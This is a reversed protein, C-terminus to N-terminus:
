ASPQGVRLADADDDLDGFGGGSYETSVVRLDVEAAENELYVATFTRVVDEAIAASSTEGLWVRHFNRHRRGDRDAAGPRAWGLIDLLVEQHQQLTWPDELYANGVAEALVWGDPFALQIYHRGNEVFVFGQDVRAYDLVRPLDAALEPVTLRRTTM